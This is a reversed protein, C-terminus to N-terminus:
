LGDIRFWQQAGDDFRLWCRNAEDWLVYAQRTPDWLPGPPRPPADNAATPPYSPLQEGPAVPRISDTHTGPHENRTGDSDTSTGTRRADVVISGAALDGVRQHSPTAGITVIGVIPVCCPLYDVAGAVSRLLARPVGLPRGDEGVVSYAFLMSGITRGTLGRQLIFVGILYIVSLAILLVVPWGDSYRGDSALCTANGSCPSLGFLQYELPIPRSIASWGGWVFVILM